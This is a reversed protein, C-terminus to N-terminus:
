KVWKQSKKDYKYYSTKYGEKETLELAKPFQEIAKELISSDGTRVLFKIDKKETSVQFELDSVGTKGKTAVLEAVKKKFNTWIEKGIAQLFGATVAGLIFIIIPGVDGAEFEVYRKTKVTFVPEFIASVSELEENTYHDSAAIELISEGLLVM